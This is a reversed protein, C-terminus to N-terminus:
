LNTKIGGRCFGFFGVAVRVKKEFDETKWTNHLTGLIAEAYFIISSKTFKQKFYWNQEIMSILKKGYTNQNM